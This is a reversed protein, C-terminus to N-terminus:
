RYAGVPRRAENASRDVTEVKAADVKRGHVVGFGRVYRKGAEQLSGFGKDPNRVM